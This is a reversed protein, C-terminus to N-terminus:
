AKKNEKEQKEKKSNSDPSPAKDLNPLTAFNEMMKELEDNKNFRIAM